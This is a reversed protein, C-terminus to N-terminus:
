PLYKDPRPLGNIYVQPVEGMIIAESVPVLSKVTMQSGFLPIIVRVRCTIELYIKHRTQNIGAQEFKDQVKTDVVGLPQFFLPISPGLNALLRNGTIQGLPVLVKVTPAQSLIKQVELTALSSLRNIEGTNPQMLVVKGRNDTKIFILDEYRIDPVVKEKIATNVAQTAVREAQAAAIINLTPKLRKDTYLFLVSGFFVCAILFLALKPFSKKTSSYRRNGSRIIWPYLLRDRM